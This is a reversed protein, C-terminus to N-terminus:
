LVRREKMLIKRLKNRSRYLNSKVSSETIRHRESIEKLSDMYWYRRVFIDRDKPKLPRLFDNFLETLDDEKEMACAMARNLREVEETIPIMHQDIRKAASKKRLCDIAFGRTIRRLFTSLVSPNKPPIYRWAAFWTDNVCEESDERSYLIKYAIRFCFSNYKDSAAQIACEKREWFLEVIKADEM